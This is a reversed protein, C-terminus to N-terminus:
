ERELYSGGKVIRVTQRNGSNCEDYALELKHSDEWWAVMVYLRKSVKNEAATIWWCADTEMADNSTQHYQVLDGGFGVFRVRM